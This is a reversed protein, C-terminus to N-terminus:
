GVSTHARVQTYSHGYLGDLHRLVLLRLALLIAGSGMLERTGAKGSANVHVGGWLNDVLSVNAEWGVGVLESILLGWDHYEGVRWVHKAERLLLNPPLDFDALVALDAFLPRVLNEVISAWVREGARHSGIVVVLTSPKPPPPTQTPPLPPLHRSSWPM